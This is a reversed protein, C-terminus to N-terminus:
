EEDDEIEIQSAAAFVDVFSTRGDHINTKNNFVEPQRPIKNLMKAQDDNVSVSPQPEPDPTPTPEVFPRDNILLIKEAGDGYQIHHREKFKGDATITDSATVEFSDNATNSTFKGHKVYIYSRESNDGPIKAESTYPLGAIVKDANITM